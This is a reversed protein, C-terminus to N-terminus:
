LRGGRYVIQGDFVTAEVETQPIAMPNIAFIDRSLVVLDALKGPTLSGKIDEEGSAYAAGWTYAWVAEHVTLREQPYWGRPGPSGDLRRRTVAAHIGELPNLSEVPCDSGFALVTGKELLSRWAYGWRSREGWYRDAMEMDSTAHIPQMSAIVRLQALRPLDDPHLLQVHEIRHRLDKGWGRKRCEELVDLVARNARDGIAHVAVAWGARSAKEVWDLLLEEPTVMIGVNDPEGLFPELMAATRSGLTGDAFIKVAGLRLYENGFGTRLGLQIAATLNEVPIHMLVRLKLKGEALLEQFAALATAGECDHIGVLGLRHAHPIAKELAEKVLPLPPEGIVSELILKASEKLIGTPEGDAQRLILGGPPDPTDACIGARELALSNAWYAHGDRSELAVPNHPAVADLDAKSPLEPREWRNCDWGGGLIWEGPKSSRAQQAVRQLVEEKSTTDSLDLRLLRLAYDVFHTHCDTLGPVVTRGELDIAEGDPALLAKMEEDDGLALIRNGGIAIARARPVSPDMTRIDGNYFVLHAKM